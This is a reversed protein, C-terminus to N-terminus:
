YTKLGIPICSGLIVSVLVIMSLSLSVAFSKLLNGYTIYVRIFSFIGLICAIMGAMRLERLLFRSTNSENIEGSAMGQIVLASTQSSSNGGTSTLMTIFLIFFGELTAEYSKIIM